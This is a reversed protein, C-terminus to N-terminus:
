RRRGGAGLILGLVVGVGAAVAAATLPRAQVERSVYGQVERFQRQAADAAQGLQVRGEEIGRQLAHEATKLTDQMAAQAKQTAQRAGGGNTAGGTQDM